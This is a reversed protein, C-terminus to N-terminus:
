KSQATNTLQLLQARRLGKIDERIGNQNNVVKGKISIVEFLHFIVFSKVGLQANRTQFINVLKM